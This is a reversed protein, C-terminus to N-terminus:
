SMKGWLLKLRSFWNEVIIRRKSIAKNKAIERDNLERRRPKKIPTVGGPVVSSLGQYGADGLTTCNEEYIQNCKENEKNILAILGSDKFLKFDHITGPVSKTFHILLGLLFM